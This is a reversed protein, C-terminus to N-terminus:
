KSIGKNSYNKCWVSSVLRINTLFFVESDDEEEDEEENEEEEEVSPM